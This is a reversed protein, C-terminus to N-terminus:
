RIRRAPIIFDKKRKTTVEDNETKALPTFYKKKLMAFVKYILASLPIERSIKKKPRM